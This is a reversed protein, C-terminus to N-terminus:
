SKLIKKWIHVFVHFKACISELPGKNPSFVKVVVNKLHHSNKLIAALTVLHNTYFDDVKTYLDSIQCFSERPAVTKSKPGPWEFIWCPPWKELHGGKKSLTWHLFWESQYLLMSNTLLVRQFGSNQSVPGPWEFMWCPQWKWSPLWNSIFLRFIRWKSIFVHFKASITESPWQKPSFARGVWFIWYPPSKELHGGNKSLAKICLGSILCFYKRLTVTKSIPGPGWFYLMNAM